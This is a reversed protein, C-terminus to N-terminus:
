RQRGILTLVMQASRLKEELVDRFDRGLAISDVDMFVSGPGLLATLDAFLARAEGATDERRYNIFVISMSNSQVRDGQPRHAPGSSRLM